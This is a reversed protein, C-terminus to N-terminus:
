RADDCGARSACRSGGVITCSPAPHARRSCQGHTWTRCSNTAQASQGCGCHPQRASDFGAPLACCSGGVRTCTMVSHANTCTYMHCTDCADTTQRVALLRVAAQCVAAARQVHQTTHTQQWQLISQAVARATRRRSLLTAATVAAHLAAPQSCAAPLTALHPMSRQFLLISTSQSYSRQM